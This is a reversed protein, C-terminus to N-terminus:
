ETDKGSLAKIDMDLEALMASYTCDDIISDEHGGKHFNEGYRTLKYVKQTLLGFRNHDDKTKLTIGNPFLALMIEGHRKYNDAYVKNRQKYLESCEKLIDAANKM